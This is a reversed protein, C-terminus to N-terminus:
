KVLTVTGGAHLTLTFSGANNNWEYSDWTGIFLRTAGEPVVFQQVEGNDRRGDGIFFLQKLQPQLQSFNRSEADNFNLSPPAVSNRPVNDNLYVGVLSNGPANIDSIGNESGNTNGTVWGTNGDATYRNSDNYDNTAGGNVGDFTMTKGPTIPVGNAAEPSCWHDQPVQITQGNYRISTTGDAFDPNNHPNPWSAVTGAAAGALFPNSTAPVTIQQEYPNDLLAIASRTLDVTPMRVLGGFILQVPNNTARTRRATVRVANAASATSATFTRNTQNWIGLEVDSTALEFPQGDVVNDRAAAIANSSAASTGYIINRLGFAGYRAATDAVRQIETDILQIRGFDVAFTVFSLMITLTITMYILAIGRRSGPQCVEYKM